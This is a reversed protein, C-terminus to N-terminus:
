SLIPTITYSATTAATKVTIKELEPLGMVRLQSGVKARAQNPRASRGFLGNICATIIVHCSKRSSADLAHVGREQGQEIM